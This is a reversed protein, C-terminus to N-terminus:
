SSYLRTSWSFFPIFIGACTHIRTHIRIHKIDALHVPDLEPYLAGEGPYLSDEGHYWTICQIAKKTSGLVCGYPIYVRAYHSMHAHVIHMHCICVHVLLRINHAYVQM